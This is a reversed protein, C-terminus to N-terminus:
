QALAHVTQLRSNQIARADTSPFLCRPPVDDHIVGLTFPWLLVTCLTGARRMYYFKSGAVEAAAEFDILDLTAGLDLHDRAQFDM